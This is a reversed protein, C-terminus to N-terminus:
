SNKPVRDPRYGPAGWARTGSARDPGRADRGLGYHAALRELALGLVIKASRAPWRREAEVAELGKLFCCIDTLVGALEPGVADLARAVRQRAAV